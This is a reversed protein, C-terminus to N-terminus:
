KDEAQKEIIRNKILQKLYEWDNSIIFSEITGVNTRIKDSDSEIMGFITNFFTTYYQFFSAILNAKQPQTNLFDRKFLIFDIQKNQKYQAKAIEDLASTNYQAFKIEVIEKLQLLEKEKMLSWMHNEWGVLLLIPKQEM